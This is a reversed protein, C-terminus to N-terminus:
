VKIHEKRFETAKIVNTTSMETIEIVLPVLFVDVSYFLFEALVTHINTIISTGALIFLVLKVCGIAKIQKSIVRESHSAAMDSGLSFEFAMGIFLLVQHTVYTMLYYKLVTYLMRFQGNAFCVILWTMMGMDRIFFVLFVLVMLVIVNKRSLTSRFAEPQRSNIFRHISIISIVIQYMAVYLNVAIGFVSCMYSIIRDYGIIKATSAAGSIISLTFLTPYNYILTRYSHTLLPLLPSSGHAPLHKRFARVYGPLCCLFAIAMALLIIGAVMISGLIIILENLLEELERQSTTQYFFPSLTTAKAKAMKFDNVESFHTSLERLEKYVRKTRLSCEKKEGGRTKM